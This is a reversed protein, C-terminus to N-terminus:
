AGCAIHCIGAVGAECCAAGGAIAAGCVGPSAGGSAGFGYVDGPQGIAGVLRKAHGADAGNGVGNVGPPCQWGGGCIFRRATSCSFM